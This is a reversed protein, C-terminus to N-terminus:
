ALLDMLPKPMKCALCASSKSTQLDEKREGKRLCVFTHLIGPGTRQLPSLKQRVEAELSGHLQCDHTNSSKM